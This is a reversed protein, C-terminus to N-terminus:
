FPLLLLFNSIFWFYENLNCLPNKRTNEWILHASPPTPPRKKCGMFWDTANEPIQSNILINQSDASRQALIVIKAM